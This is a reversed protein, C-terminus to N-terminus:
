VKAVEKQYLHKVYTKFPINNYRNYQGLVLQKIAFPIEPDDLFTRFQIKPKVEKYKEEKLYECNAPLCGKEFMESDDLCWSNKHRNKYGTCLGTETDLEPCHVNDLIINFGELELNVYCCLGRVKCQLCKDSM